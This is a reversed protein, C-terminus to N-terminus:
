ARYNEPTINYSLWKVIEKENTKLRYKRRIEALEMFVKQVNRVGFEGSLAIRLAKIEKIGKNDDTAIVAKTRGLAWRHIALASVSEPKDTRYRPSLLHKCVYSLLSPKMCEVVSQPLVRDRPARKRMKTQHKTVYDLYKVRFSERSADDGYKLSPPTVGKLDYPDYIRASTEAFIEVEYFYEDEPESGESSVPTERLERLYDRREQRRM